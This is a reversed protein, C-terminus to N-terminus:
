LSTDEVQPIGSAATYPMINKDNLKQINSYIVNGADILQM